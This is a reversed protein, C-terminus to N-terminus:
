TETNVLLHRKILAMNVGVILGCVSLLKQVMCCFLAPVETVGNLSSDAYGKVLAGNLRQRRSTYGNVLKGNLNKIPVNAEFTYQVTTVCGTKVTM